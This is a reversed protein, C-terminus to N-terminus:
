EEEENEEKEEKPAEGVRMKIGPTLKHYGEDVIIEGPILGREVVVNNGFEPGLEIFRKEATSDKRMVFIYAGGKEIILAKQPIVTANERVELLLKVKTFQGPLLVHEPNNMEARVSFTGTKPDVQPEAFDVLGKYPYVSNDPLTITVTPQWSRTSDKQGIIINREKSKLYDLATMSFDILVTDSKVITALLSKGSTGVLTGLDVHRESIQGAIPSRVVTYGLEQEAQDLDAQSMGVSAVATEYAAIANDLDLQSAANQEYLPRIRELDRETKRAQAEDKKLQASAKDVKARYQDQNIVFLVQNKKVHTGEAFLMQELFGEVRARVEVFQQARIRGVYEGYIEVDQQQAPTVSVIPAEPEVAKERTLFWYVAIIVIIGIVTYVTQRKKLKLDKKTLFRKM